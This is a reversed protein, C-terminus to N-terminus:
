RTIAVAHHKRVGLWHREEIDLEDRSTHVFYFEREPYQHHLLRYNQMATKGNACPEIVALKDLCRHQSTDTHAQLAEVILWQNPYNQRIKQWEM